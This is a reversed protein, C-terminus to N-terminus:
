WCYFQKSHVFKNWEDFRIHDTTGDPILSNIIWEIKITYTKNVDSKLYINSRYYRKEDGLVIASFNESSLPKM